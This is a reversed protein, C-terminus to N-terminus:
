SEARLIIADQNAGLFDVIDVVEFNKGWNSLIYNASHYVNVYYNEKDKEFRLQDNDDVVVFGSNAVKDVFSKAARNLALYNERMVTVIALGNPKLIRALEDLWLFQVNERLHTFISIGIVLDFQKESFPLPPMLDIHSFKIDPLNNRCWDINTKDVDVGYLDSCGLKQLYRTVRACGCGWDLVRGIRAFSTGCMRELYQNLRNATTAGGVCYSILEKNGIVRFINDGSPLVNEKDPNFFYWASLNVVESDLYGFPLYRLSLFGDHFSVPSKITFRYCSDNPLESFYQQLAPDHQLRSPSVSFDDILFRADSPRSFVCLIWGTVILEGNEIKIIDVMWRLREALALQAQFLSSKWDPGPDTKKLKKTWM